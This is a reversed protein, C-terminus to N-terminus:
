LVVEGSGVAPSSRERLAVGEDYLRHGVSKGGLGSARGRPSGRGHSGPKRGTEFPSNRGKFCFCVQFVM